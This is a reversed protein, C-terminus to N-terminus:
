SQCAVFFFRINGPVWNIYQFFGICTKTCRSVHNFLHILSNYHLNKQLTLSDLLIFVIESPFSEVSAGNVCVRISENFGCSKRVPNFIKGGVRLTNLYFEGTWVCGITKPDVRSFGRLIGSTVAGMVKPNLLWLPGNSKPLRTVNARGNNEFSQFFTEVTRYSVTKESILHHVVSFANRNDLAINIYVAGKNRSTAFAFM